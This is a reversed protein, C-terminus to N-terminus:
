TMILTFWFCPLTATLPRHRWIWDGADLLVDQACDSGWPRTSCDRHFELPGVGRPSMVRCASYAVLGSSMFTLLSLHVTLSSSSLHGPRFSPSLTAWSAGVTKLWVPTIKSCLMQQRCARWNRRIRHMKRAREITELVSHPSFETETWYSLFPNLRKGSSFPSFSLVKGDEDWQVKCLHGQALKKARLVCGGSQLPQDRQARVGPDSCEERRRSRNM